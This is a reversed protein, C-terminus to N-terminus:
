PNRSGGGKGVTRPCVVHVVGERFGSGSPVVRCVDPAEVNWPVGGKPASGSETGRTWLDAQLHAHRLHGRLRDAGVLGPGDRLPAPKPHVPVRRQFGRVQLGQALVVREQLGIAPTTAPRANRLIPHVGGPSTRLATSGARTPLPPPCVGSPRNAPARPGKLADPPNGGSGM